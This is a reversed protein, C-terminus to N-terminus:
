NMSIPQTVDVPYYKTCGHCFIFVGKTFILLTSGHPEGESDIEQPSPLGVVKRSLM